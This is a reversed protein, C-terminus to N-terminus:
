LLDLGRGLCSMAEHVLLKRYHWSLYGNRAIRLETLAMYFPNRLVIARLTDEPADAHRCYANLFHRIFPESAYPDAKRWLFLHKLEGCVMGVDYVADTIRMRELDIAAVEGGETFIFNTPTADGHVIVKKAKQLVEKDLWLDMLQLCTNREQAPLVNQRALTDIVKRYYVCVPGLEVTGQMETRRHLAALFSALDSLKECLAKEGGGFAARKFYYDLSRGSVYEEVLALGIPESRALPRVVYHPLTDFGYRRITQLNDFEGKIRRVRDQHMDGPNFFKAILTTGTKEESYKYVRPSATSIIHFLPARVDPWVQEYLVEYLPDACDLTGLYHDRM